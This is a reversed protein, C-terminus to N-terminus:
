VLGLLYFLIVVQIKNWWKSLVTDRIIISETLILIYQKEERNHHHTQFTYMNFFFFFLILYYSLFFPFFLLPKIWLTWWRQKVKDCDTSRKWGQQSQDFAHKGGASVSCTIFEPIYRHCARSKCTFLWLVHQMSHNGGCWFVAPKGAPAFM